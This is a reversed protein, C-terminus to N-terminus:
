VLAPKPAIPKCFLKAQARHGAAVFCRALSVQTVDIRIHTASCRLERAKEMAAELLARTAADEKIVDLATFLDVTLVTGLRLDRDARYAFLGCLYGGENRLGIAGSSHPPPADVLPRAFNKWAALDIGPVALLVLTFAPAIEDSTLPTTTFSRAMAVSEGFAALVAKVQIL